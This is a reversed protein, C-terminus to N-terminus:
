QYVQPDDGAFMVRMAPPEGLLEDTPLVDPTPVAIWEVDQTLANERAVRTTTFQAADGDALESLRAGLRIAGDMQEIAPNPDIASLIFVFGSANSVIVSEALEGLSHEPVAYFARM